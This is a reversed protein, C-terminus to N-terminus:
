PGHHVEDTGVVPSRSDSPGTLARERFFFPAWWIFNKKGFIPMITELFEDGLSERIRNLVCFCLWWTVRYIGGGKRSIEPFVLPPYRYIGLKKEFIILSYLCSKSTYFKRRHPVTPPIAYFIGNKKGQKLPLGREIKWLIM